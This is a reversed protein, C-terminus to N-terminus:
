PDPLMWMAAIYGTSFLSFFGIANPLSLGQTCGDAELALYNVTCLVLIIPVAYYWRM